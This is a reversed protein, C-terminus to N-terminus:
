MSLLDVQSAAMNCLPMDVASICRPSHPNAWLEYSFSTSVHPWHQQKVNSTILQVFPAELLTTYWKKIGLLVLLINFFFTTYSTLPQKLPWVKQPANEKREILETYNGVLGWPLGGSSVFHGACELLGSLLVGDKLTSDSVVPEYFM